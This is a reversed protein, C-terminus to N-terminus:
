DAYQGAVCAICSTQAEADQYQGLPCATCVGVGLDTGNSSNHLLEGGYLQGAGCAPCAVAGALSVYGVACAVCPTSPDSDDDM